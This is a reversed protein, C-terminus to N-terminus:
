YMDGKKSGSGTVDKIQKVVIILMYLGILTFAIGVGTFLASIKSNMSATNSLYATYSALEASTNYTATAPDDCNTLCVYKYRDGLVDQEVIGQGYFLGVMGFYISVFGGIILGIAFILQVLVGLYGNKLDNAM